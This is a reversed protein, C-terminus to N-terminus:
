HTSPKARLGGVSFARPKEKTKVEIPPRHNHDATQSGFSVVTKSRISKERSNSKATPDATVFGGFSIATTGKTKEPEIRRNLVAAQGGNSVTSRHM